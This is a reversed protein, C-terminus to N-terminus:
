FSLRSWPCMAAPIIVHTFFRLSKRAQPATGWVFAGVRAGPLSHLEVLYCGYQPRSFRDLTTPRRLSESRAERARARAHTHTHTDTYSKFKCLM